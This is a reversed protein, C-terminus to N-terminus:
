LTNDQPDKASEEAAFMEIQGEMWTAITRGVQLRLCRLIGAKTFIQGIYVLRHMDCLIAPFHEAVRGLHHLFLIADPDFAQANWGIPLLGRHPKAPFPTVIDIM